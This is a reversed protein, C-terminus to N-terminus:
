FDLPTVLGSTTRNSYMKQGLIFKSEKTCCMWGITNISTYTNRINEHAYKGKYAVINVYVPYLDVM